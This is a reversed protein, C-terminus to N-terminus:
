ESIQQRQCHHNTSPEQQFGTPPTCNSWNRIEIDTPHHLTPHLRPLWRPTSSLSSWFWFILIIAETWSFNKGGKRTQNILFRWLNFWVRVLSGYTCFKFVCNLQLPISSYHFSVLGSYHMVSTYDYQVGWDPIVRRNYKQFNYAVGEIMNRKHITVYEDRDPRTQEHHFGIAHGLEHIIIGKQSYYWVLWNIEILSWRILCKDTVNRISM